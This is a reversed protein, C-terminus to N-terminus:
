GSGFHRQHERRRALERSWFYFLLPRVSLLAWSAKVSRRRCRADSGSRSRPQGRRQQHMPRRRSGSGRGSGTRGVGEAHRSPTRRSHPPPAAGGRAIVSCIHRKAGVTDVVTSSEPFCSSEGSSATVVPLEWVPKHLLRSSACADRPRGALSEGRGLLRSRAPRLELRRTTTGLSCTLVGPPSARLRATCLHESPALILQTGANV